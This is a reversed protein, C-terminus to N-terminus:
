RATPAPLRVTARYTLSSPGGAANGDTLRLTHDLIVRLATSSTTDAVDFVLQASSGGTPDVPTEDLVAVPGAGSITSRQEVADAAYTAGRVRLPALRSAVGVVLWSRGPEAWGLDPLYPLHRADGARCVPMAAAVDGAFAGQTCAVLPGHPPDDPVDYLADAPGPAREGTTADISQVLDHYGVLLRIEDIQDPAESVAVVVDSPAAEPPAPDHTGQRILGVPYSTGDVEITLDVSRSAGDRGAYAWVDRRVDADHFLTTLRVLSGGGPAQQDGVKEVPRSVVLDFTGTPVTVSTVTGDAAPADGDTAVVAGSDLGVANACAGTTAVLALAALTTVIRRPTAARLHRM